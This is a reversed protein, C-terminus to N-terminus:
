PVSTITLLLDVSDSYVADCGDALVRQLVAPSQVDWAFALLGAFHV